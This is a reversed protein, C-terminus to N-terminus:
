DYSKIQVILCEKDCFLIKKNRPIVRDLVKM